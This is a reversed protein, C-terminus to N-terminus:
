EAFIEGVAKAVEDIPPMGDIRHVIGLAQYQELVPETDQKYVSLRQRIADPTDDDRQVLKAGCVDCQEDHKPPNSILNYIKKDNLCVRRASLRKITEDETIDIALVHTPHVDSPFGLAQEKNRPFSDIVAGGSETVANRIKDSMLAVVREAPVLDGKNMYSAFLLGEDSGRAIEDRLLQGTELYPVKLKEALRKGQTGKGSGQPGIIIVIPKQNTM